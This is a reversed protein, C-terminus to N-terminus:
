RPLSLQRIYCIFGFLLRNKNTCALAIFSQPQCQYHLATRPRQPPSLCLLGPFCFRSPQKPFFGFKEQSPLIDTQQREPPLQCVDASPSWQKLDNLYLNQTPGNPKFAEQKKLNNKLFIQGNKFPQGGCVQRCGYSPSFFLALM